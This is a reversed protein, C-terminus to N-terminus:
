GGIRGLITKAQEVLDVPGEGVVEQLLERAGELDGMEEYAKALDLKTNVEEWLADRPVSPAEAAVEDLAVDPMEAPAAVAPEASLDLNISGIDFEPTAMPQGLFVSDTLKVDFELSDTDTLGTNVVTNTMSADSKDSGFDLLDEGGVFTDTGALPNVVTQTLSADTHPEPHAATDISVGQGESGVWTGLGVDLDEMATASASPMVLTGEPSFDPSAAAESSQDLLSDDAVNLDFDLSSIELDNAQVPAPAAPLSFEPEHVEAALDFDLAGVGGQVATDVFDEEAPAEEEQKFTPAITQEGLDFDLTMADVSTDTVEAAPASESSVTPTESEKPLVMTDREGDEGFGVEPLSPLPESVPQEPEIAPEVAETEPPLVPMELPPEVNAVPTAPESSAAASNYLPNNPDLSAGLLAVKEWDPGVGATQAYLESALTEFQKLSRRNAYIELLKAHIATRQPDKQLAELLIEEAQTDRGYAM